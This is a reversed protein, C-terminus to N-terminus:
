SPQYTISQRNWHAPCDFSDVIVPTILLSFLAIAPLIASWVASALHELLMGCVILLSLSATLVANRAGRALTQYHTQQATLAGIPADIAAGSTLISAAFRSEAVM